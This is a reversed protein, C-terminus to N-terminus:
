REVEVIVVLNSLLKVQENLALNQLATGTPLAPANDLMDWLANLYNIKVAYGANDAMNHKAFVIGILNGQKDFVPGGSNGPSVAASHQFSSVSGQFGTKASVIGTTLKVEHGMNNAFPYGLVFVDEGTEVGKSRVSYPIELSTATPTLPELIALDNQADTLVVKAQVIKSMDGNLGRINLTKANEVVHYNTIILGNAAVVFGTGNGKGGAVDYASKNIPLDLNEIYKVKSTILTSDEPQREKAKKSQENKTLALFTPLDVASIKERSNVNIVVYLTDNHRINLQVQSSTVPTFNTPTVPCTAELNLTIEGTSYIKYEALQGNSLLFERQNPFYLRTACAMGMFKNARWVYVISSERDQSQASIKTPLSMTLLVSFMLSGITLVKKM